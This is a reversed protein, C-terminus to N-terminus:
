DYDYDARSEWGSRGLLSRGRKWYLVADLCSTCSCPITRRGVALDAVFAVSRGRNQLIRHLTSRISM